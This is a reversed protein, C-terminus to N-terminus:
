AWWTHKLVDNAGVAFSDFRKWGNDWWSVAGPDGTIDQNAGPNGLDEWKTTWNGKAFERHILRNTTSRAFVDVRGDGKASSAAFPDGAIEYTDDQPGGPISWDHSSGDFLTHILHKRDTTELAFCDIQKAGSAAAAPASNLKKGYGGINRWEPSWSGEWYLNSMLHDTTHVFIDFRNAKWSAAAPAYDTAGGDPEAVWTKDWKYPGNWAAHYIKKDAGNAFLDIRNNDWAVAGLALLETAPLSVPLAEWAWTPPNALGNYVGHYISRDPSRGRLFVHLLGKEWAVVAPTGKIPKKIGGVRVEVNEWNSWAM